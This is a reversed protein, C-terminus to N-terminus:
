WDFHHGSHVLGAIASLITAFFLISLVIGIVMWLLSAKAWNVKSTKTNGGFAWVFLMVINVIPISTLLITILWDGITVPDETPIPPQPAHLHGYQPPQVMQSPDTPHRLPEQPQEPTEQTEDYDQM